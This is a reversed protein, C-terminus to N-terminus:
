LRKNILYGVEHAVNHGYQKELFDLVQQRNFTKAGKSECCYAGDGRFELPDGKDVFGM